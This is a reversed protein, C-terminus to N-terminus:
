AQKYTAHKIDHYFLFQWGEKNGQEWWQKRLHMAKEPDFDYKTKYRVKMQQLQPADDGGFFITEGEERIWFVQHNPSHAGTHWYTIYDDITGEDDNLFKVQPSNLLPELEEPLFSPLGKALAFDLERKQVYYTANPFNLVRSRSNSVGGAHDKHLHSMLVKTVQGPEYGAARINEHIQLKGDPTNYGLGADLLLVDKSTIVLFPQIEVLLSGIPRENLVDTQEDFPVFLKTKDITFSGESLPIVKM